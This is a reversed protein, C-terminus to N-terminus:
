CLDWVEGRLLTTMYADMDYKPGHTFYHTGVKMREITSIVCISRLHSPVGHSGAMLKLNPHHLKKNGKQGRMNCM